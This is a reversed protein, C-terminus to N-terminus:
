APHLENIHQPSILPVPEVLFGRKCNMGQRLLAKAALPQLAPLIRVQQQLGSLNLFTQQLRLPRQLLWSAPGCGGCRRAQM